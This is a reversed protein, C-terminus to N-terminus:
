EVQMMRRAEKGAQTNPYAIAIERFHSRAASILRGPDKSEDWGVPRQRTPSESKKAEDVLALALKLRRNATREDIAGKQESTPEGEGGFQIDTGDFDNSPLERFRISAVSSQGAPRSAIEGDVPRTSIREKLIKEFVTRYIKDIGILPDNALLLHVQAQPTHASGMHHVGNQRVSASAYSRASPKFKVMIGQEAQLREAHAQGWAAKYKADKGQSTLVALKRTEVVWRAERLLTAADVPGAVVHLVRGDSLTFYGAVNGGQKQGNVIRFNGVKQYSSVFHQNLYNAVNADSLARV